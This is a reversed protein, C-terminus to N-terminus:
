VLDALLEMACLLHLRASHLDDSDGDLTLAETVADEGEIAAAVLAHTSRSHVVPTLAYRRAATLLSLRRAPELAASALWGAMGIERHVRGLVVREGDTGACDRFRECRLRAQEVLVYAQEEAALPAVETTLDDSIV